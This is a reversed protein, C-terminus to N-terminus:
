FRKYKQRLEYPINDQELIINLMISKPLCGNVFMLMDEIDFRKLSLEFVEKM